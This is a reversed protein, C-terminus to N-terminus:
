AIPYMWGHRDEALGHQIELLASRLRMTIPGSEGSGITFQGAASKVAGVPTVVAATGCAFAEVLHGSAAAERWEDTSILREETRYGLDRALTLISDRTVGPLLSGTLRPTVLTHGGEDDAFVFYLNMGGMEEVWRHEVADLWVVQDCGEEAAQAQAVLSAAYNGACKAAGTGGPAARSYDTSLWVTVPKVGRPFYSGVPSAILVYLYERAPRVGLFADTAFMLPRLYLSTEPSTPIWARDQTVLTRVSELFLDEPLPAMALRTASYQFRRANQEPRFLAVSGDPQHYAKLGEFIEQGYHLAAAAPDLSIAHYPELQADFWGKGEVYRITVMHDTFVRGFGPDRLLAEREGPSVPAPTPHLDFQPVPTVTM